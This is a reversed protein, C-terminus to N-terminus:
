LAGQRVYVCIIETTAERAAYIKRPRFRNAALRKRRRAAIYNPLGVRPHIIEPKSCVRPYHVAINLLTEALISPPKKKYLWCLLLFCVNRSFKNKKKQGRERTIRAAQVNYAACTRSERRVDTVRWLSSARALWISLVLCSQRLEIM